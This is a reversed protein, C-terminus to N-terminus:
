RLLVMKRSEVHGDVSLRTVYVGSPMHRGDLSRGDWSVRHGGPHPAKVDDVLTAVLRGAVDYVQLIVRSRSAITYSIETTQAFPNPYNQHLTVAPVPTPDSDVGTVGGDSYRIVMGDIGGGSKQQLYPFTATESFYGGVYIFGLWGVGVGEGSDLGIGGGSSNWVFGGGSLIKALFVDDGGYSAMPTRFTVWDRFSGTLLADDNGDVTIGRGVDDGPGNGMDTWALVGAADYKAVFVDQGGASNLVNGDFTALGGFEGTVYINNGSDVDVARARDLETGGGPQVWSFMGGSKYKATFADFIGQSNLVTTGFTASAAFGGVVVCDGSGDLAVDFGADSSMGGGSLAWVHAGSTDYKAVFMDPGGASILQTTDFFATDAYEGTVYCSSSDAAIGQGIDHDTGGARRVWVFDGVPTYKAVFIDGSGASTVTNGDFEATGNFMGTIYIFGGEVAISLGTDYEPGGARFFFLPFGTSHIKVVLIDRSGASTIPVGFFEATGEFYGIAYTDGVDDTAVDTIRQNYL